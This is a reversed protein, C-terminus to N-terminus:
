DRNNAFYTGAKSNGTCGFSPTSRAVEVSLGVFRRSSAGLRMEASRDDASRNLCRSWSKGLPAHDPRFSLILRDIVISATSARWFPDETPQRM